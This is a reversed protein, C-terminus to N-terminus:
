AEMSQVHEVNEVMGNKKLGNEQINTEEDEVYRQPRKVSMADKIRFVFIEQHERFYREMDELSRGATEPFLIYVVPIIAANTVAWVIYFRWTLNQM